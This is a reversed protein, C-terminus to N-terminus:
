DDPSFTFRQLLGASCVHIVVSGDSLTECVIESGDEALTGRVFAEPDDTEVERIFVDRMQNNPCENLIERVMEYRPM